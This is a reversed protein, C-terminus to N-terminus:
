SDKNAYITLNSSLKPIIYSEWIYIFSKVIIYGLLMGGLVDSTWHVGVYVRSFSIILAFTLFYPMWKKYHYGFWLALIMTGTAHGSPFSLRGGCNIRLVLDSLEKCPRQQGFFPKMVGSSIQDGLGVALIGGLMIFKTRKDGFILGALAAIAIPIGFVNQNTIFPMFIDFVPNSLTQNIFRFLTQDISEIFNM